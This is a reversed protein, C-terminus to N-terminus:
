LFALTVGLGLGFIVHMIFSMMPMSSSKKSGFLGLDNMPLLVVGLFVWPVAIAFVVPYIIPHYLLPVANSILVYLVGLVIGVTFHLVMWLSGIGMKEALMKPPSLEMKGMKEAMMMAVTLVITAVIGGIIGNVITYAM